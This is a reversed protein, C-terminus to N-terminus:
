KHKVYLYILLFIATICFNMAPEKETYIVGIAILAAFILELYPTKLFVPVPKTQVVVPSVSRSGVPSIRPPPTPTRRAVVAPPPTPSRRSEPIVPPPTPTRRQEPSAPPPTPTRRDAKEEEEEEGAKASILLAIMESKNMKSPITVGMRKAMSKIQAISNRSVNDWDFGKVAM